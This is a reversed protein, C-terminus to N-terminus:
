LDTPRRDCTYWPSRATTTIRPGSNIGISKRIAYSPQSSALRDHYPRLDSKNSPWNFVKQKRTHWDSGVDIYVSAQSRIIFTERSSVLGLFGFKKLEYIPTFRAYYMSHIFYTFRPYISKWEPILTYRDESGSITLQLVAHWSKRTVDAAMANPM